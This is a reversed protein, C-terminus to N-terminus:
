ALQICNFTNQALRTEALRTIEECLIFIVGPRRPPKPEKNYRPTVIGTWFIQLSGDDGAESRWPSSRRSTASLIPDASVPCSCFYHTKASQPFLYARASKPLYVYTLPLVWFCSMQLSGMLASGMQGKGFGRNFQMHVHLSRACTPKRTTTDTCQTM